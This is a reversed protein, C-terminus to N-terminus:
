RIVWVRSWRHDKNAELAIPDHNNEETKGEGGHKPIAVRSLSSFKLDLAPTEWNARGKRQKRQKKREYVAPPISRLPLAHRVIM